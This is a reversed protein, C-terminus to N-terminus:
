SISFKLSDHLKSYYDDELMPKMNWEEVNKKGNNHILSAILSQNYINDSKRIAIRNKWKVDALNEYNLNQKLTKLIKKM